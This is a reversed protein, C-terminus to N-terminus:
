RQGYFPAEGKKPAPRQTLSAGRARSGKKVGDTYMQGEPMRNYNRTGGYDGPVRGTEAAPVSQSTRRANQGNGGTTRPQSDPGMKRQQNQTPRGSIIPNSSKTDNPGYGIAAMEDASLSTNACGVKSSRLFRTRGETANNGSFRETRNAPAPVNLAGQPDAFPMPPRRIEKQSDSSTHAADSLVPPRPRMATNTGTIPQGRKTTIAV